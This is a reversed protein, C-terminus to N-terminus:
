HQSKFDVTFYYCKIYFFKRYIATGQNLLDFLNAQTLTLIREVPKKGLFMLQGMSTMLSKGTRATSGSGSPTVISVYFDLNDMIVM